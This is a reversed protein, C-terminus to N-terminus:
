DGPKVDSWFSTKPQALELTVGGYERTEFFTREMVKGKVPFGLNSMKAAEEQINEVNFALHDAGEGHVDFFQKAPAWDNNNHFMLTVPGKRCFM